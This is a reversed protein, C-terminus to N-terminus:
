REDPHEKIKLMHDKIGSLIEKRIHNTIYSFSDSGVTMRDNPSMTNLYEKVRKPIQKHVDQILLTKWEDTLEVSHESAITDIKKPLEERMFPELEKLANQEMETLGQQKPLDLQEFPLDRHPTLGINLTGELTEIKLQEFHYEITDVTAQKKETPEEENLQQLLSIIQAVQEMQYDVKQELRNLREIIYPHVHM